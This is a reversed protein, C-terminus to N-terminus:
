PTVLVTRTGHRVVHAVFRVNYKLTTWLRTFDELELARM